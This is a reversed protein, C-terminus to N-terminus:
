AEQAALSMQELVRRMHEEEAANARVLPLRLGGVDHGLMNLATKVMIPNATIFLSQYLPKLEEDIALAAEEKGARYLEVMEKM